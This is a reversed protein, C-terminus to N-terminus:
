ARAGDPDALPVILIMASLLVLAVVLSPVANGNLLWTTIGLLCGGELMALPVLTARFRAAARAEAATADAARRLQGRLFLAAIGLTAGVAVSAIDLAEIPETGLGKGDNTQIAGAVAIAYVAVGLLLALYVLRQVAFPPAPHPTM